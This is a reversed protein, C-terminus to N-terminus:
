CVAHDVSQRIVAAYGRGLTKNSPPM